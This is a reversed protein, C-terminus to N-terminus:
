KLPDRHAALAAAIGDHEVQWQKFLPKAGLSKYGPTQRYKGLATEYGFGQDYFVEFFGGDRREYASEFWDSAKDFDGLLVHMAGFASAM